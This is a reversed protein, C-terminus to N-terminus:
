WPTGPHWFYRPWRGPIEVDLSYTEDAGKQEKETWPTRFTIAARRPRSGAGRRASIAPRSRTFISINTILVLRIGGFTKTVTVRCPSPSPTRFLIPTPPPHRHRDTNRKQRARRNRIARYITSLIAIHVNQLIPYSTRRYMFQYRLGEGEAGKRVIM